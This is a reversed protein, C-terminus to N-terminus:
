GRRRSLDGREDARALTQRVPVADWPSQNVFQQLCQEDGDPLGPPWRSPSFSKEEEPRRKPLPSELSELSKTQKRLGALFLDAMDRTMGARVVVRLVSLDERNEPFTYAPVLWGEERLRASVDFVTYNTVEPKLAFAFVPLDSGDTILRYPGIDAIERAIHQACASAGKQVDAYGTEGLAVFM